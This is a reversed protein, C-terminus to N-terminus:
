IALELLSYLTPTPTAPSSVAQIVLLDRCVKLIHLNLSRENQESIHTSCSIMEINLHYSVQITQTVRPFFILNFWLYFILTTWRHVFFTLYNYKCKTPPFYPIRIFATAQRSSTVGNSTGRVTQSATHTAEVFSSCFYICQITGLDVYSSHEKVPELLNLNVILTEFHFIIFILIKSM